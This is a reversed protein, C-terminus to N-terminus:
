KDGIASKEGKLQFPCNCKETRYSGRRKVSVEEEEDEDDLRAKKKEREFRRKSIYRTIIFYTSVIKARKRTWNVLDVKLDLLINTEFLYNHEVYEEETETFEEFM